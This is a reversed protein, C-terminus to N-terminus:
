ELDRRVQFQRRMDDLFAEDGIERRKATKEKCDDGAQYRLRDEGDIAATCIVEAIVIPESGKAKIPAYSKMFTSTLHHYQTRSDDINLDIRRDTLVDGPQVIKVAFGAERLEFSLAKSM